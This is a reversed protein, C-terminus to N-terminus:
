ERAGLSYILRKLSGKLAVDADLECSRLVDHEHKRAADVLANTIKQGPGDIRVTADEASGAENSIRVLGDAALERLLEILYDRDAIVASALRNVTMEDYDNLTALVRWAQISIGFERVHRSWQENYLTYAHRLLYNLFGDVFRDRRARAAPVRDRMTSPYVTSLAYGGRHFLLAEEDFSEFEIVEGVIITHDGAAYQGFTSCSFRAACRKLLPAEGSDLEFENGGFKDEGRRAFRNSLELQDAALVNVAFHGAALFTPQSWADNNISWLVLPPDLSVSTFSNATVGHAKRDADFATVVTVGTAFQGVANRFSQRREQQKM